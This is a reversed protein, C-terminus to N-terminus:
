SALASVERTVGSVWFAGTDTVVRWGPILRIVSASATEAKFYGQTLETVTSGLWGLADRSGLFAVLADAAGICADEDVRALNTADFLASGSITTLRNADYTFMLASSFVPVGLLQQTATLQYVGAELRRPASLSALELGMAELLSQVHAAPNSVPAYGTLEADFSGSRAVQCSGTASRYLSLYRTSDDQALVNEGLLARAAPLAADKDPTLELTYLPLTVPLVAQGLILGNESFLAQLQTLALKQQRQQETRLPIVLALLVLNVLVLILLVLNKLKSASM